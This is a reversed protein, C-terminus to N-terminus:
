AQPSFRVYLMGSGRCDYGILEILNRQNDGILSSLGCNELSLYLGRYWDARQHASSGGSQTHQTELAVFETVRPRHARRSM